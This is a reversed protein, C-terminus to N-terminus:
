GSPKPLEIWGADTHRVIAGTAAYIVQEAINTAHDAIRECQSVLEYVAFAFDVPMTGAAIAREADRILQSKFAEVTDESDLVIKALRADNREFSQTVDRLIGAVSNTLVLLASPLARGIAALVPAEAAIMTAADATRELENNIKVITLVRRLQEPALAAGDRTADTLLGVAAREIEVDVRDVEDDRDVVERARGADRAFVVEAAQEFLLTVRRGQEALRGALDELRREFGPTTSTM